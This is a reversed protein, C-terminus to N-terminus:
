PLDAEPSKDGGQPPGRPGEDSLDGRLVLLIYLVYCDKSKNSRIMVLIRQFTGSYLYFLFFICLSIFFFLFLSVPRTQDPALTRSQQTKIPHISYQPSTRPSACVSRGSRAWSEEPLSQPDTESFVKNSTDSCPCYSHSHTHICLVATCPWHPCLSHRDGSGVLM